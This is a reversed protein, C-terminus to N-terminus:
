DARTFGLLWTYMDNGASLDYTETWSNPGVGPYITLRHDEASPCEALNTLPDISGAPSIEDDADGHFAWIPVEGLACGIQDWALRGEGAIPVLAAIQMAGYEAAYEFAAYGGCSLGTLYVRDPDVDYTDLAYAIFEHVGAPRHCISNGEPHGNETQIPLACDGPMPKEFCAAYLDDSLPAPHQPALVLFPRDAPWKDSNILYPISGGDDLLRKLQAETGDGSELLGHLFVLLPSPGGDGYTPPIYEYYALPADSEGLPYPTLSGSSRWTPAPAHGARLLKLMQDLAEHVPPPPLSHPGDVDVVRANSSRALLADLGAEWVAQAEPPVDTGQSARLYTIPIDPIRDLAERAEDHITWHIPEPGSAFAAKLEELDFEGRDAFYRDLDADSHLSADVLVMGAVEDPQDGAFIEALVGGFSNAVLLYPGRVDAAELLRKLDGISDAGSQVGEAPDSLGM